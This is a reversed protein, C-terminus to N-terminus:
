QRPYIDYLYLRPLSYALGRMAEKFARRSASRWLRLFLADFGLRCHATQTCYFQRARCTKRYPILWLSHDAAASRKGQPNASRGKAKTTRCCLPMISEEGLPSEDATNKLADLRRDKANNTLPYSEQLSELLSQADKREDIETSVCYWNILPSNNALAIWVFEWAIECSTGKARFLAVLKTPKRDKTVIM